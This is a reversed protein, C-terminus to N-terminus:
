KLTKTRGGVKGLVKGASTLTPTILRQAVTSLFTGSGGKFGANTMAKQGYQKLGQMNGWDFYQSKVENGVKKYTKDRIVKTMLNEIQGYAATVDKGKFVKQPLQGATESKVKQWFTYSSPDTKYDKKWVNLAEALEAKRAPNSVKQIEKGISAAIDESSLKEKIKNVAPAVSKNWLKDAVKAAQVGIQRETGAIGYKQATTAATIPKNGLGAQYNQLLEAEKASTPLAKQYLFESSKTAGSQVKAKAAKAKAAVKAPNTIGGVIEATELPEVVFKQM